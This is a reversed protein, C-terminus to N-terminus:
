PVGDELPSNRRIKVTPSCLLYAPIPLTALSGEPHTLVTSRVDVSRPGSGWTGLRILGSPELWRAQDADESMSQTDLLFLSASMAPLKIFM